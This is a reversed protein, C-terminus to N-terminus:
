KQTSLSFVKQIEKLIAATKKQNKLDDPHAILKIVRQKKAPDELENAWSNLTKVWKEFTKEKGDVHVNKDLLTQISTLAGQIRLGCMGWADPSKGSKEKSVEELVSKLHSDIVGKLCKMNKEELIAKTRDGMQRAEAWRDQCGFFIETIPLEVGSHPLQMKLMAIDDTNAIRLHRICPLLFDTNIIPKM